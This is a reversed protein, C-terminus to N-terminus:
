HTADPGRLEKAVSVLMGNVFRSSDDTSFAKALEVAEDLVVATPVDPRHGLEEIGIRLIIRDLVPMRELTWGRAYKKILADHDDARMAVGKVIDVTYADPALPLDSLVAALTRDKMECEYLLELARERADRRAVPLASM